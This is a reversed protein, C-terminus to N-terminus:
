PGRFRDTRHHIKYRDQKLGYQKALPLIKAEDGYLFFFVSPDAKAVRAVGEIVAEPAHDGGMADISIVLTESM